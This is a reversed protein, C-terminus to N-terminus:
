NQQVQQIFPKNIFLTTQWEQIILFAVFRSVDEYFNLVYFIYEDIIFQNGSM